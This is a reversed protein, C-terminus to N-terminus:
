SVFLISIFKDFRGFVPFPSTHGQRTKLLHRPRIIRGLHALRRNVSLGHHYLKPLPPALLKKAPVVKGAADAALNSNILTNMAFTERRLPGVKHGLRDPVEKEFGAFEGAIMKEPRHSLQILNLEIKDVRDVTGHHKVGTGFFRVPHIFPHIRAAVVFIAM